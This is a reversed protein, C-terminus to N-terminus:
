QCPEAVKGGLATVKREDAKALLKKATSCYITARFEFNSASPDLQIAKNIEVLAPALKDQVFYIRSRYHFSEALKPDLSIATALDALALDFKSLKFYSSGRLKFAIAQKPDKEIAKSIAAVASDYKGSEYYAHGLKANVSVDDGGLEFYKAFDTAAEVYKKQAMWADGRNEYAPAFKPAAEIITNFDAIAAEFQKSETLVIGRLGYAEYANPNAEIAASFDRRAADLNDQTLYMAGRKTLADSHKPQLEIIKNLDALALDRKGSESYSMARRFLARTATPDLTAAKTAYEVSLDYNKLEFHTDARDMYLDTLLKKTKLQSENEIDFTGDAPADELTLEIARSFDKLADAPKQYSLLAHGRWHLSDVDDPFEALALGYDAIAAKWDKQKARIHARTNYAARRIARKMTTSSESDGMRSANRIALDLRQLADDYEERVYNNYGLRVAAEAIQYPDSSTRITNRWEREADDVTNSSRIRRPNELWRRVYAAQDTVTECSGFRALFREGSKQGRALAESDSSKIDDTFQEYLASMVDISGCGRQALSPSYGILLVLLAIVM